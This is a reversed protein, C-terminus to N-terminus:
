RDSELKKELAEVRDLFYTGILMTVIFNLLVACLLILEIKSTM